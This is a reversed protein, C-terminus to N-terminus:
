KRDNKNRSLERVRKMNKYSLVMCVWRGENIFLLFFFFLFCVFCCFLVCMFASTIYHTTRGINKSVYWISQRELSKGINRVRLVVMLLKLPNTIKKLFIFLKMWITKSWPQSNTIKFQWLNKFYFEFWKGTFCPIQSLQYCPINMHRTHIYMELMRKRGLLTM